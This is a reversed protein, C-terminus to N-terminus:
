PQYTAIIEKTDPKWEVKCGLSEALFRLPVMTRGNIIIPTVKPNKPDIQVQKGNLTAIPNGIQMLMELMETKTKDTANLPLCSIKIQGSKYSAKGGFAPFFSTVSIYIRNNLMEPKAPIPYLYSDFIASNDGLKYVINKCTLSYCILESKHSDIEKKVLIKGELISMLNDGVGFEAIMDGSNKDICFIKKNSSVFLNSKTIIIKSLDINYNKTWILNGEKICFLKEKNICYLIENIKDLAFYCGKFNTMEWMQEGTNIEFCAVYPIDKILYSTYVKSNSVCIESIKFGAEATFKDWILKGDMDFCYIGGEHNACLLKRNSYTLISWSDNVHSSWKKQGDILCIINHLNNENTAYITKGDILLPNSGRKIAHKEKLIFNNINYNFFGNPSVFYVQNESISLSDPFGETPYKAILSGDLPNTVAISGNKGDTLESSFIKNNYFLVSYTYKTIDKSWLERFNTKTFEVDVYNTREIDGNEFDWSPLKFAGLIIVNSSIFLFSSLLLLIALTNKM